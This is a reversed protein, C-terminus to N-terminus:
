ESTPANSTETLGSTMSKFDEISIAIGPVVILKRDPTYSLQLIATGAPTVRAAFYLEVSALTMTSQLFLVLHTNSSKPTTSTHIHLYSTLPLFACTRTLAGIFMHSPTYIRRQISPTGGAAVQRTASSVASSSYMDYVDRDQNRRIQSLCKVIASPTWSTCIIPRDRILPSARSPRPLAASPPPHTSMPWCALRERKSTM